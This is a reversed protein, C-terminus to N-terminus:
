GGINRGLWIVRGKVDIDEPHIDSYTPYASNDSKITLTKNAPHRSVRKVQLENGLDIIYIGDRGVSRQTRDVLVHDGDHLTEWMSDGAVRIVALDAPSATTIRRLWDSRYLNFSVPESEDNAAGAGAAARIDWVGIAMYTTSNFEVGRTHGVAIESATEPQQSSTTSIMLKEPPVDLVGSLREMWGQTLERERRELKTIQGESCHAREALVARSLGM